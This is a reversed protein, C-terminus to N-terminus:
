LLSLSVLATLTTLSKGSGMTMQLLCRPTNLIFRTADRQYTHLPSM